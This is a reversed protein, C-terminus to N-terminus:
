GSLMSLLFYLQENFNPFAAEFNKNIEDTFEKEKDTLEGANKAIKGDICFIEKPIYGLILLRNFLAVRISHLDKQYIYPHELELIIKLIKVM